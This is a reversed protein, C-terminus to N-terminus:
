FFNTLNIIFYLKKRKLKTLNNIKEMEHQLYICFLNLHMMSHIKMKVKELPPKHM